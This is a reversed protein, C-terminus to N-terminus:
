VEDEKKFFTYHVGYVIYTGIYTGVLQYYIRCVDSRQEAVGYTIVIDVYVEQRDVTVPDLVEFKMDPLKENLRDKINNACRTLSTPVREWRLEKGLRWRLVSSIVERMMWTYFMQLTPLPQHNEPYLTPNM